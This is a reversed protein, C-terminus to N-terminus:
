ILGAGHLYRKAKPKLYYEANEGGAYSSEIFDGRTLDEIYMQVAQKSLSLAKSIVSANAYEQRLIFVLMKEVEADLRDPSIVKSRLSDLETRLRANEQKLSANEKHMAELDQRYQSASPMENMLNDIWSM